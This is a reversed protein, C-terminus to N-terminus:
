LARLRDLGAKLEEATKAGGEFMLMLHHALNSKAYDDAINHTLCHSDFAESMIALQEPDATSFFLSM